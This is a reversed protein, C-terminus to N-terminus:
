SGNQGSEPSQIPHLELETVLLVDIVSATDDEHYVTAIRGTPSVSLFDRHPVHLQRGNPLHITFPQFPVAQQALRLQDSIM